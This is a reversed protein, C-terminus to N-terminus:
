SMPHGPSVRNTPLRNKASNRNDKLTNRLAEQEFGTREKAPLPSQNESEQIGHNNHGTIFEPISIWLDKTTVVLIAIFVIFPILVWKFRPEVHIDSVKGVDGSQNDQGTFVPSDLRADKHCEAIM